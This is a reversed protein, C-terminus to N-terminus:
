SIHLQQRVADLHRRMEGGAAEPDGLRLASLMRRHAAVAARASEPSGRDRYHISQVQGFSALTAQLLRNRAADAIAGHFALALQNFDDPQDVVLESQDILDDLRDWQEATARVSALAAIAPEISNQADLMEAPGVELVHYAVALGDSANALQDAHPMEATLSRYEGAWYVLPEGSGGGAAAVRGVLIEHDGGPLVDELLCDFWSLSGAIIPAGTQHVTTLVNPFGEPEPLRGPAAFYRAVQQQDSALVSVAFAQAARVYGLLPSSRNISVTVLLPNLSLSAFSSVTVGYGGEPVKTTVVTVGSAFRGAAHRFTHGSNEIV